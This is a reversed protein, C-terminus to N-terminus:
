GASCTRSATGRTISSETMRSASGAVGIQRFAPEVSRVTLAERFRNSDYGKDGILIRAPPLANLMLAAGKHDSMQRESLLM